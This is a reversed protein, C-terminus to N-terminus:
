RARKALKKVTAAQAKALSRAQSLLTAIAKALAREADGSVNVDPTLLHQAESWESPRHSEWWFRAAALARTEFPKLKGADDKM